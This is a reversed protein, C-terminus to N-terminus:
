RAGGARLRGIADDLLEITWSRSHELLEAAGLGQCDKTRSFAAAQPLLTTWLDRLGAPLARLSEFAPFAPSELSALGSRYRSLFEGLSRAPVGPAFPRRARDPKARFANRSEKIPSGQGPIPLFDLDLGAAFAELRERYGELPKTLYRFESGAGVRDLKPARYLFEGFLSEVPATRCARAEFYKYIYTGRAYCKGRPYSFDAGYLRVERSGLAHALSLAAHTVNGGSTDLSPFARWQASVYQCFPHGSSFFHLGSAIRPIVPPSALDLVLPVGPPYGDMFHYYSILQCDITIVADPVLEAKMLFPLTTDTAILFSGRAQLRRIEDSRDELSPGAACVLASDARRVPTADEQARELNGIANRFWVKGFKSQVTYDDSVRSLLRSVGEAAAEFPPRDLDVRSRLPLGSFPGSLFPLYRELLCAELEAESPDILVCLRRDALIDSLDIASLLNSFLEIGFDIAVVGTAERSGLLERLLYAGGIGYAVHFGRLPLGEAARRVEKEPDFTSHLPFPKGGRVICPVPLGTRAKAVSFSPDADVFRVPPRAQTRGASLARLNREFVAPDSM